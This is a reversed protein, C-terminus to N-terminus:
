LLTKALMEYNDLTAVYSTLVASNQAVKKLFQQLKLTALILLPCTSPPQHYPLYAAAPMNCRIVSSHPPETLGSIRTVPGSLGLSRLPCRVLVPKFTLGIGGM